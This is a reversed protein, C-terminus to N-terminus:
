SIFPAPRNDSTTDNYDIKFEHLGRKLIIDGRIDIQTYNILIKIPYLTGLGFGFTPSIKSLFSGTKILSIRKDVDEWGGQTLTLFIVKRPTINQSIMLTHTSTTNSVFLRNGGSTVLGTLINGLYSALYFSTPTTYNTGTGLLSSSTEGVGSSPIYVNADTNNLTLRVQFDTQAQVSQFSLLVLITTLILLFKSLM